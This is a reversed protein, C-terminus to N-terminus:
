VPMSGLKRLVMGCAVVSAIMKSRVFHCRSISSHFSWVAQHIAGCTSDFSDSLKSVRLSNARRPFGRSLLHRTSPHPLHMSTVITLPALLATVGHFRDRRSSHHAAPCTQRRSRTATRTDAARTGSPRRQACARSCHHLRELTDLFDRLPCGRSRLGGIAM